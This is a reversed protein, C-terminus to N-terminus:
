YILLQLWYYGCLKRFRRIIPYNLYLYVNVFPSDVDSVFNELYLKPNSRFQLGTQVKQAIEVASDM